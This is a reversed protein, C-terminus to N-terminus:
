VQAGNRLGASDFCLRRMEVQHGQGNIIADRKSQISSQHKAHRSKVCGMQCTTALSHRSHQKFQYYPTSDPERQPPWDRRGRVVFEVPARIPQNGNAPSPHKICVKRAGTLEPTPSSITTFSISLASLFINCSMTRYPQCTSLTISSSSPGAKAKVM